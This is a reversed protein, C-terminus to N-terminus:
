EMEVMKKKDNNCTVSTTNYTYCNENHKFIKGDIKENHPAKFVICDRKKCVRRFLTSLGFGLIISLVIHSYKSYLLRKVFM